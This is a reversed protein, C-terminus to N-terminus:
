KVRPADGHKADGRVAKWRTVMERTAEEQDDAGDLAYVM